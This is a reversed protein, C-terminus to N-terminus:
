GSIGGESMFIKALGTEKNIPIIMFLKLSVASISCAKLFVGFARRKDFQSQVVLSQEALFILLNRNVCFFLEINDETKGFFGTQRHHSMVLKFVAKISGHLIGKMRNFMDHGISNQGIIVHYFHRLSVHSDYGGHCNALGEQHFLGKISDRFLVSRRLNCLLQPYSFFIEFILRCVM